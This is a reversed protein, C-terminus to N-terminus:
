NACCRKKLHANVERNLRWRNGALAINLASRQWAPLGPRVLSYGFQLMMQGAQREVIWVLHGSLGEHSNARSQDLDQSIKQHAYAHTTKLVPDSRRSVPDLMRDEYELGISDCIPQLCIQPNKLFNEFKLEIWKDSSILQESRKAISMWHRWLIAQKYFFLITKLGWSYFRYKADPLENSGVRRKKNFYSLITSRADRVIHVLVAQPYMRSLEKVFFINNLSKEGYVVYNEHPRPLLKEYVETFSLIGKCNLFENLISESLRSLHRRCLGIRKLKDILSKRDDRSFKSDTDYGAQRLAFVLEPENVLYIKSHQGLVSRILTTGSRPFGFLFIPRKLREDEAM